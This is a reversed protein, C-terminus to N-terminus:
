RVLLPSAGSAPDRLIDQWIESAHTIGSDSVGFTNSASRRESVALISVPM